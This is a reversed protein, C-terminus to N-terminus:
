RLERVEMLDGEQLLCGEAGWGVGRVRVQADTNPILRGKILSCQLPCFHIWFLHDSSSYLVFLLCSRFTPGAASERMVNQERMFRLNKDRSEGVTETHLVLMHTTVHVRFDSACKACSGM